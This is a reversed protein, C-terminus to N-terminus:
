RNSITIWNDLVVPPSPRDNRWIQPCIVIPNNKNLYAAWCSFTSNAIIMNKGHAMLYMDFFSREGKNWSIVTKEVDDFYENVYDVNDSFFF